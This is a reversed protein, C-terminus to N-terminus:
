YILYSGDLVPPETIDDTNDQFSGVIEALLSEMKSSQNATGQQNADRDYMDNRLHASLYRECITELSSKNTSYQGQVIYNGAEITEGSQFDWTTDLTVVGTTSDIDTIPIGFMVAEGDANVVSIYNEKLLNDRDLEASTDLTLATINTGSTTVSSITARRKDLRPLKEVYTIRVYGSSQPVPAFLISKNKRIYYAPTGSVSTRELISAPKLRYYDSANSTVGFEFLSIQGIYIQTPLSLLEVGVNISSIYEKLFFKPHTKVIEAYIRDQADNLYEICEEDDIGYNEGFEDNETERRVREIIREVRRM